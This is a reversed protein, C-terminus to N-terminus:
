QYVAANIALCSLERDRGTPARQLRDQYLSRSPKLDLLRTDFRYVYVTLGATAM